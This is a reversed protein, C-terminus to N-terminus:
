PRDWRVKAADRRKDCLEQYAGMRRLFSESWFYQGDSQFLWFEEICDQIFEQLRDQDADLEKALTALGYKGAMKLRYGSAERMLELLMWYWGYGEAGYVLRLELIKQDRRANSDHRFWYVDASKMDAGQRELADAV